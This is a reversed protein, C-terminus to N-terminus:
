LNRAAKIAEDTCYRIGDSRSKVYKQLVATTDALMSIDADLDANLDSAGYVSLDRMKALVQVAMTVQAGLSRVMDEKLKLHDLPNDVSTDTMRQGDNSKHGGIIMTLIPGHRVSSPYKATGTKVETRDSVSLDLLANPM